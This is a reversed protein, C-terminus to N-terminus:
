ENTKEKREGNLIRFARGNNVGSHHHELAKWALRCRDEWDIRDKYIYVAYPQLVPQDLNKISYDAVCWLVLWFGALIILMAVAIPPLVEKEVFKVPRKVLELEVASYKRMAEQLEIWVTAYKRRWDKRPEKM